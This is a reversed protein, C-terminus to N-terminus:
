LKNKKKMVAMVDAKLYRNRGGMKSPVLRKSNQWNNLTTYSVKALAMVEKSTLYESNLLQDDKEENIAQKVVIKIDAILDEFSKGFTLIQTQQM